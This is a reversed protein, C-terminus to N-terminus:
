LNAPDFFQIDGLNLERIQPEIQRRDGSVVILLENSHFHKKAAKTTMERNVSEVEKLYRRWEDLPLDYTFLEGLQDAIGSYTQFMQPYGKIINDKADVIEEETLPRTEAIERLERIIEVISEKTSQSQVPAYTMFPGVGQTEFFVSRVGYSYGKDERLNLNLRSTFKGGLARNLVTLTAYDPDSRRIGLHGIYIVSQPANPKDILFIKTSGIKPPAPVERHRVEGRKWNGFARELKSKAEEMTIDGAITIASNNPFYNARYYGLLDDRRIAQISAVTGTGTFPQGYPHESGFLLRLFVKRATINPEKSEQQIMGLYIQRQRELEETPFTPNLVIDSMLDLGRDLNKGLVNLQVTSNDFSSDTSLVAGCAKTEQAIQLATRTTTGEDLLEATLSAAGPRDSPDAAWGSKLVLDLHLLPLKHDEVLLIELGNSLKGKQIKPPDFSPEKAPKPESRRDDDASGAALNGFPVVHLIVRSQLQIYEKAYHLLDAPTAQLYRNLDWQFKGPDGLMINYMNLRDAIGGFGGILQLARVFQAEYNNQAESLEAQTVGTELLKQLEADVAAELEPLTHGERATVQIEFISGLEQSAQYAMVDQAIQREYVLSQYLRSTKGDSLISALLDFEADGSQFHAPTHWAFFLRPLEVNDQMVARKVTNLRPIWGSLRDVAPGPPIPAFYKEVFKRAEVPNFDGAISLSANNPAYYTRFFESIDEISAASLDAMSGIVPWSYPHNPPYLLSPFLDYAKAYPQNEMSQRRENKVVDRQNDLKAQTMAPILFGMRDSELWLALELYNSPVNEWYNTRDEATSGNLLAGAKQLPTFYDEDHHQSGQFMMHEFLHAFGTRGPKENKSGVHYWVNVAVVPISHDEHFIVELGNSLKFKEFKVEPLNAKM